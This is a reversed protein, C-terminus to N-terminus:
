VEFPNASSHARFLRVFAAHLPAPLDRNPDRSRIDVLLREAADLDVGILTNVDDLSAQLFRTLSQSKRSQTGKHIVIFGGCLKMHIALIICFAKM